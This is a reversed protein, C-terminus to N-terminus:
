PAARAHACEIALLVRDIPAAAAPRDAGHLWVGPRAADSPFLRGRRSAIQQVRPAGRIPLGQFADDRRFQAQQFAAMHPTKFHAKLADESVWRETIRMATPDNMEVSFNYDECGEEQLSAEVMAVIADKMAAISAEDSQIRANIVIM